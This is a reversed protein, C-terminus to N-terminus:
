FSTRRPEPAFTTRAERSEKPPTKDGSVGAEDAKRKGSSNSYSKQIAPSTSLIPLMSATPITPTSKHHERRPPTHISSNAPIATSHFASSPTTANMPAVDVEPEPPLNPTFSPSSITRVKGKSRLGRSLSSAMAVERLAVEREKGKRAVHNASSSTSQLIPEGNTM